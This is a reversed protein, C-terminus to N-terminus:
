STSTAALTSPCSMQACFHGGANCAAGPCGNILIEVRLRFDCYYTGRENKRANPQAILLLTRKPLGAARQTYVASAALSHVDHPDRPAMVCAVHDEPLQCAEFHKNPHDPL